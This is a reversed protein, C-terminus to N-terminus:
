IAVTITIAAALFFYLGKRYERQATYAVALAVCFTVNAALIYGAANNHRTLFERIM